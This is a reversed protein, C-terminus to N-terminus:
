KNKRLSPDPSVLGWNEEVSKALIEEIFDTMNKKGVGKTTLRATVTGDFWEKYEIKLLNLGDCLKKVHMDWWAKSNKNEDHKVLFPLAIGKYWNRQGETIFEIADLIRLAGREPVEEAIEEIPKEFGFLDGVRKKQYTKM